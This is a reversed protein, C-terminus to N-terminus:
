GFRNVIFTTAIGVEPDLRCRNESFDSYACKPTAQPDGVFGPPLEVQIEKPSNELQEPFPNETLTFSTTLAYPHSGAQTDPSGNQNEAKVSFTKIGFSGFATGTLLLPICLALLFLALRKGMIM